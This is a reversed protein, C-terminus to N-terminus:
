DAFDEGEAVLEFARQVLFENGKGLFIEIV